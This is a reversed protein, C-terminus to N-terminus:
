KDKQLCGIRKKHTKLYLKIFYKLFSDEGKQLAKYYAQRKKKEIIIMPYKNHWLIYNMLLRGIRGNGDGFPHISEFRYHAIASLEAPNLKSTNIFNILNHMLYKVEQWDPAIYNGVRVLYERFRGAIDEKTDGFIDKHWNLLLNVTIEEKKNLM